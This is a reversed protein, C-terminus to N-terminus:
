NEGDISKAKEFSEKVTAFANRDLENWAPNKSTDIAAYIIGKLFWAKGATKSPEGKKNVMTGPDTTTVDIIAKAEDLKNEKWAKEAKPLSPKVQAMGAFPSLALLVIFLKKM